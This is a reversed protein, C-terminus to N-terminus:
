PYSGKIYETPDKETCEILNALNPGVTAFYENIANSATGGTKFVSEKYKYEM